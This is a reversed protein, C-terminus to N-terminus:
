NAATCTAQRRITDAKARMEPDTALIRILVLGKDSRSVAVAGDMNEAQFDTAIWFGDATGTLVASPVPVTNDSVVAATMVLETVPLAVRVPGNALDYPCISEVTSPDRRPIRSDSATADLHIIRNYGSAEGTGAFIANMTLQPLLWVTAVHVLAAVLITFGLWRGMTRFQMVTM